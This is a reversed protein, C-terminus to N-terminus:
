KDGEKPDPVQMSSTRGSDTLISLHGDLVLQANHPDEIDIDEVVEGPAVSRGDSLDVSHSSTGVVNGKKM